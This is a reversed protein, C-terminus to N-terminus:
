KAAEKEAATKHGDPVVDGAEYFYWRGSDHVVSVPVFSVSMRRGDSARVREQDRAVIPMVGEDGIKPNRQLM